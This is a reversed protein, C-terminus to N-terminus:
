LSLLSSLSTKKFKRKKIKINNENGSPVLYKRQVFLYLIWLFDDGTAPTVLSNKHKKAKDPKSECGQEAFGPEGDM